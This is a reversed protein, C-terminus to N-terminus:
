PRGRGSGLGSCRLEVRTSALDRSTKESGHLWTTWFEDTIDGLGIGGLMIGVFLPIWLHRTTMQDIHMTMADIFEQPGSHYDTEWVGFLHGLSERIALSQGDRYEEGSFHSV